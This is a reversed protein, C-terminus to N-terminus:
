SAGKNYSIERHPDIKIVFHRYVFFTYGLALALAPFFWYFGITLGYSSAAANSVTLSLNPQSNSPLVNPYLGFAASALLGLLFAASALFARLGNTRRIAGFAAASILPFVIGWPRERFSQALHPQVFFSVASLLILLPILVRWARDAITRSRSALESTTNLAVWLAGHMTLVVVASIGVLITYWDIIGADPGPQFNAWLPLFFDGDSNLPVGRVVNGLATGFFVVLLASSGAFVVDWFSEWLPDQVHNRFEIAIGRLILLWLVIMLALYFGSFASAYLPPFAFYLTGEAALLWVENGDWVPGISNLIARREERTKAAFLHIIGAGLDFGDLVVYGTLLIAVLCFWVTAM